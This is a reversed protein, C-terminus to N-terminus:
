GTWVVTANTAGWPAGAISNEPKNVTIKTLNNNEGLANEAMTEVSTPIAIETISTNSIAYNEITKVTNPITIKTIRGGYCFAEYAIKTAGDAIVVELGATNSALGGANTTHLDGLICDDNEVLSAPVTIKRVNVFDDFGMIGDYGEGGSHKTSTAGEPIILETIYSAFATATTAISSPIDGFVVNQKVEEGSGGESGGGLSAALMWKGLTNMVYGERTECCYATSGASCVTGCAGVSTPTPLNKLDEATDCIFETIFSYGNRCDRGIIEIAM